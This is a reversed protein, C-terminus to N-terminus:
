AAIEVWNPDQNVIIENWSVVSAGSTQGTGAVGTVFVKVQANPAVIGVQGQLRPSTTAVTAGTGEIVAAVAGVSGTAAVGTVSVNASQIVFVSGAQGTATVGTVPAVATGTVSVTGVAGTASLGTVSDSAGTVVDVTSSIDDALGAFPEEAFSLGGFLSGGLEARNGGVTGTASVGTVSVSRSQVAVVSGVAGTGVSGTVSVSENLIVAGVQGTAQVGTVSISAGLNVTIVFPASNESAFPAEVFSNETIAGGSEEAPNPTLCLASVGTVPASISGAPASSSQSFSVASFGSSGFM